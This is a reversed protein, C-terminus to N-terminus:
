GKVILASGGIAGTSTGTADGIFFLCASDPITPLSLAAWDYPFALNVQPVPVTVKEVTATVGFSGATGTTASLTVSEISRINDGTNPLIQIMRGTVISTGLAIVVTKGSTGNQDTYSITANVGTAGTSAYWELWWQVSSYDAPGKRASINDTAALANLDVGVTQATTVTGSLGGM